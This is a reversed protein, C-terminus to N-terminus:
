CQCNFLRCGCFICQTVSYTSSKQINEQTSNWCLCLKIIKLSLQLIHIQRKFLKGHLVRVCFKYVLTCFIQKGKSYNGTYFELVLMIENNIFQPVSYKNAKQIIERTSNQCLCLKENNIFQPVSYKKAKQIIVWTSNQCLYLKM